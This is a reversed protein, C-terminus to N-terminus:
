ESLEPHYSQMQITSSHSLLLKHDTALQFHQAGILYMHLRFEAALAERETQSYQKETDTLLSSVFHVPQYGRETKQFLGSGLASPRGDCIVVTDRRPKYPIIATKLDKFSETPSRELWVQSREHSFTGKLNGKQSPYGNVLRAFM